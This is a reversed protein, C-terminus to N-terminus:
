CELSVVQWTLILIYIMIPMNANSFMAVKSSAHSSFPELVWWDIFRNFDSLPNATSRLERRRRLQQASSLDGAPDVPQGVEAGADGEELAAQGLLPQGRCGQLAVDAEPEVLLLVVLRAVLVGRRWRSRGGGAGGVAAAVCSNLVAGGGMCVSRGAAALWHSSHCWDAQVVLRVEYQKGRLVSAPFPSPSRRQGSRLGASIRGTVLRSSLWTLSKARRCLEFEVVQVDPIQLINNTLKEM